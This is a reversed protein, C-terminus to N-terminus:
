LMEVEWGVLEVRPDSEIFGVAKSLLQHAFRRDSTVCVMGLTAKQWLDHNDVESISINFKNRLSEVLSKVVQRKDKLSQSAGIWVEVTCAGIVM